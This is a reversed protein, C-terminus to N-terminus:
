RVLSERTPCVRGTDKGVPGLRSHRCQGCGDEDWQTSLFSTVGCAAPPRARWATRSREVAGSSRRARSAKGHQTHFRAFAHSRFCVRLHRTLKRILLHKKHRGRQQHCRERTATYFRLSGYVHCVDAHTVRVMVSVWSRHM